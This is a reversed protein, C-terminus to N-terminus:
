EVGEDVHVAGLGDSTTWMKRAQRSQIIVKEPGRSTPAAGSQTSRIACIPGATPDTAPVDRHAKAVFDWLKGVKGEGARWVNVMIIWWVFLMMM